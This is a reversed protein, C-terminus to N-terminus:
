DPGRIEARPQEAERMGTEAHEAEGLDVGAGYTLRRFWAQGVLVARGSYLAEVLRRVAALEIDADFAAGERAGSCETERRESVADAADRGIGAGHILLM